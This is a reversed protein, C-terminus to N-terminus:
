TRGIASRLFIDTQNRTFFYLMMSRVLPGVPIIPAREDGCLKMKSTVLGALV